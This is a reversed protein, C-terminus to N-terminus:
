NFYHKIGFLKGSNCMKLFILRSLKFKTLIGKQRGTIVCRNVIKTISVNYGVAFMLTSAKLRISKYIHKNKIINRLIILLFEKELFQIRNKKDKNILYKM